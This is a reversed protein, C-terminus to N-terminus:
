ASAKSEEKVRGHARGKLPSPGLKRIKDSFETVVRAFKEGESASVWDLMLRDPSIGIFGLLEKVVPIRKATMFNGKLYHCEGIHCGTVLVGDAGMQFAKVIHHPSVTGSCMVRIPLVNAAYKKRSGGALDAGAYSCWNCLFGIITPEFGNDTSMIEREVVGGKERV